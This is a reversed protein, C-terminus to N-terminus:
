LKKIIEELSSVTFDPTQDLNGADFPVINDPRQILITALGAARGGAIDSAPNDGIMVSQEASFGIAQITETLIEPLPKGVIVAEVGTADEIAAVISREGLFMDEQGLYIGPYDRSGSICILGAGERVMKAAFNLRAYTLGADAGVAVYDVPPNNTVQLGRELFDEIAGGESIVFCAADPNRNAVYAAAAAGASFTKDLDLKFGASTVIKHIHRSSLRGVNTLAAVTKGKTLLADWLNLADKFPDPHDVDRILTNDVDFVWLDRDALEM